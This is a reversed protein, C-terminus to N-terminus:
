EALALNVIRDIMETLSIGAAAMMRPYRSYSTCGPMTNVENLVIDGNEQLFLDVRALGRCGLAIYVRKATEKIRASTEKPIDAPVTITANESGEEPKKEQHIRFFGHALTIMDIEGVLLDNGNGMVSCGVEFGIIAEEILVKDDFQRATQVADSLESEDKVKSVGFSSGSRAPKVFVPYSLEGIGIEDHSQLICFGPTLIGANHTVLHALSKDMGLVSSEIDCGVYPIGSMELLGQIQGDEGMKGHIVPFVVDIYIKRWGDDEFVLIGHDSKDPSIVAPASEANIFDDEFQKILKWEGQKSIYLPYPTYKDMDMSGFVQKASKISIDHEESCGGFLVAIKLKDM